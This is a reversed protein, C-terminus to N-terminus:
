EPSIVDIYFSAKSRLKLNGPTNENLNTGDDSPLLSLNLVLNTTSKLAELELGEFLEVYEVTIAQNDNAESVGFSFTHQLNFNDDFFEIDAQYARNITNTTEFLFEARTLNDVVYDDSFIEVYVSDRVTILEVGDDDIFTSAPEEFHLISVELASNIALDEAQDFDVDDICATFCFVTCLILSLLISYKKPM